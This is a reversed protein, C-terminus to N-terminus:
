ESFGMAARLSDRQQILDSAQAVSRDLNFIATLPSLAMLCNGALGDIVRAPSEPDAGWTMGVLKSGELKLQKQLDSPLHHAAGSLHAYKTLYLSYVSTGQAVSDLNVVKAGNARTPAEQEMREFWDESAISSRQEEPVSRLKRLLKPRRADHSRVYEEVLADKEAFGVLLVLAEFGYRDIVSAETLLGRAALPLGAELSRVIRVYMAASYVARLDDPPICLQLAISSCHEAVREAYRFWDPCRAEIQALMGKPDDGLYRASKV